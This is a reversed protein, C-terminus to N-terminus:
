PIQPAKMRDFCDKTLKVVVPSLSILAILNPIAMLGNMADCFNIITEFNTVAGLVIVGLYCLRYPPPLPDRRRRAAEDHRSSVVFRRSLGRCTSWRSEKPDSLALFRHDAATSGCEMNRRVVFSCAM